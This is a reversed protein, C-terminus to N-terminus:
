FMFGLELWTTRQNARPSYLLSPFPADRGSVLTEEETLGCEAAILMLTMGEPHRTVKKFSDELVKVQEEALKLSEASKSSM